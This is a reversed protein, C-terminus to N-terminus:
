AVTKINSKLILRRKHEIKIKNRDSVNASRTLHTPPILHNLVTTYAWKNTANSRKSIELRGQYKLM